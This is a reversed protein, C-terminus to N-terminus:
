IVVVTTGNSAFAYVGPAEPAPVRVCGHSAPFAPVDAYEHFAIGNNFYSAYPLYVSFPVSWSRLEKRFVKYSGTPTPTAPGGSSVHIARVVKGSSILLAVGKARYVEIRRSPGRGGPKPRSAQQLKQRTLPGAVGDRDLGQWAQFAMVAQTTRYGAKGDVADAPLYGLDALRQQLQRATAAPAPAPAPAPTAPGSGVTAPPTSPKTFDKRGLTGAATKTQTKPSQLSLLHGDSLVKASTIEKFQTLTYIVQGLRANLTIEQAATRDAAAPPVGKLFAPSLEIVAAKGDITLRVVKVGDPIQTAINRAKEQTTPGRLLANVTPLATTSLTQITRDVVSFQEGGTFWLKIPTAKATAAPAPTAGVAAAAAALALVLLVVFPRTARSKFM